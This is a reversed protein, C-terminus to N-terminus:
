KDTGLYNWVNGKSVPKENLPPPNTRPTTKNSILGQSAPLKWLFTTIHKSFLTLYTLTSDREDGQYSLSSSFVEQQCGGRAADRVWSMGTILCQQNEQCLHIHQVLNDWIVTEQTVIIFAVDQWTGCIEHIINIILELWFGSTCSM